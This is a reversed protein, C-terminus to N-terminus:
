SALPSCLASFYDSWTNFARLKTRCPEADRIGVASPLGGPQLGPRNGYETWCSQQWASSGENSQWGQSSGPQRGANISPKSNSVTACFPKANSFHKTPATQEFTRARIIAPACVYTKGKSDVHRAYCSHITDTIPFTYQETQKTDKGECKAHLVVNKDHSCQKGSFASLEQMDTVLSWPKQILADPKVTSHLDSMCGDFDFRSLGFKGVFRAVARDKWYRCGKPWEICIKGGADRVAEAVIVFNNWLKRFLRLHYQLREEGGPKHRNLNM